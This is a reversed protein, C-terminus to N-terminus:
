RKLKDASTTKRSHLPSVCVLRDAGGAVKCGCESLRLNIKM